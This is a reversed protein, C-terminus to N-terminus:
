HKTAIYILISRTFRIIVVGIALRSLFSPLQHETITHNNAGAMLPM